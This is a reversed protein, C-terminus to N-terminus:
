DLEVPPRNGGTLAVYAESLTRTGASALIETPTGQHTILGKDLLVIRDAKDVEDVLHTAWLISTDSADRIRRVHDV